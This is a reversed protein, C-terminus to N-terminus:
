LQVWNSAVRRPAAASRAGDEVVDLLEEVGFGVGNDLRRRPVPVGPAPAARHQLMVVGVEDM